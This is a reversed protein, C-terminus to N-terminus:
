GHSVAASASSVNQFWAHILRVDIKGWDTRLEMSQRYANLAKKNQVSLRELFALEESTGWGYFSGVRDSM